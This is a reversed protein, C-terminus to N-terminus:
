MISHIEMENTDGILDPISFIDRKNNLLKTFSFAVLTIM